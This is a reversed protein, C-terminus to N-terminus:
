RVVGKAYAVWAIEGTLEIKDSYDEEGTADTKDISCSGRRLVNLNWIGSAGYEVSILTGDSVAIFSEDEFANFEERLDGEVEVLDDSAGYITISKITTM